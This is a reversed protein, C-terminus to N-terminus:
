ETNCGIFDLTSYAFSHGYPKQKSNGGPFLGVQMQRLQSDRKLNQVRPLNKIVSGVLIPSEYSQAFGLGLGEM